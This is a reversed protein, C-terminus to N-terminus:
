FTAVPSLFAVESAQKARAEHIAAEVVEQCALCYRAYPKAALREPEISQGCRECDGYYGLEISRLTSDIEHVKQELLAVLIVATRHEGIQADGEDPELDVEEALMENLRALEEIAAARERHLRAEGSRRKRVQM